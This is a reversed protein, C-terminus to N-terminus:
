ITEGAFNFIMRSGYRQVIEGVVEDLKVPRQVYARCHSRSNCIV